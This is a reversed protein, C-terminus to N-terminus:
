PSAPFAFYGTQVLSPVTRGNGEYGSIIVRLIRHDPTSDAAARHLRSDFADGAHTPIRRFSPNKLLYLDFLLDFCENLVALSRRDVDQWCAVIHMYLANLVQKSAGTVAFALASSDNLFAGVATRQEPPLTQYRGFAAELRAYNALVDQMKAQQQRLAQLERMLRATEEAFADDDPVPEASIEGFLAAEAPSLPELTSHEDNTLLQRVANQIQADQQLLRLLVGRIQEEHMWIVAKGRRGKGRVSAPYPFHAPHDTLGGRFRVFYGSGQRKQTVNRCHLGPLETRKDYCM